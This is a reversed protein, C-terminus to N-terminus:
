IIAEGVTVRCLYKDELYKVMGDRVSLAELSFIWLSVTDLKYVGDKVSGSFEM